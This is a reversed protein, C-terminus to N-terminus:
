IRLFAVESIACDEYETAADRYVAEIALTVQDTRGFDFQISQGGQQDLLTFTQETADTSVTLERVRSNAYFKADSKQYGNYIEIARLEIPKSFRYTLTVRAEAGVDDGDSNWATTPDRDLTNGVVYDGGPLTSSAKAKVPKARKLEPAPGTVSPEPNSPQASTGGGLPGSASQVLRYALFGLALALLIAGVVVAITLGVGRGPPPPPPPPPPPAAQVALLNGCRGCRPKDIPNIHGCQPCHQGSPPPPPQPPPFLFPSSDPSRTEIPATDETPDSPKTLGNRPTGEVLPPEEEDFILPHHCRPCAAPRVPPLPFGCNPCTM